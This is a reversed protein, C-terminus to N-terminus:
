SCEKRRWRGAELVLDSDVESGWAHWGEVRERAFLEVRPLDGMLQVIRDRVEPPKASHRGRPALVLQKVNKAVRQPRGRKAFLCAETNGNCWHGLGSYWGVGSPNLKVWCFGCTTYTFGWAEIVQLAEQILPWTAWCFLACDKAALDGVPLASLEAVTMTPYTIGGM